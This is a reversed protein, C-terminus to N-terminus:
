KKGEILHILNNLLEDINNNRKIFRKFIFPFAKSLRTLMKIHKKKKISLLENKRTKFDSLKSAFETRKEDSFDG